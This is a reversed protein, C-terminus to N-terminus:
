CFLGGKAFKLERELFGPDAGAVKHTNSFLSQYSSDSYM